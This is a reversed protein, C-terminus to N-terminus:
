WKGNRMKYYQKWIETREKKGMELKKMAKELSIKRAKNKDCRDKYYQKIDVSVLLYWKEYIFKFINCYTFHKARGFHAGDCYPYIIDHRWSIKYLQENLEFTM